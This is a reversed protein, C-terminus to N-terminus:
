DAYGYRTLQDGAVTQFLESMEPSFRDRWGGIAGRRFTPSADSFVKCAIARVESEITPLGVLHYLRSITTVQDDIGGGGGPGVLDEFRVVVTADELWGAFSELRAGISPLGSAADGTIVLRLRDAFDPKKVLAKHHPHGPRGAIFSVQSVAIDRPDRIMFIGTVARKCLEAVREPQHSLHTILVEGAGLEDLLKALGGSRGLNRDNITRILKRYLQGHLCLARELLHTGAKPLSICVIAPQHRDSLRYRLKTPSFGFRDIDWWRRRLTQAFEDVRM